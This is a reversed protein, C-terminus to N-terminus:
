NDTAGLKQTSYIEFYMLHLYKNNECDIQEPLKNLSVRSNHHNTCQKSLHLEELEVYIVFGIRVSDKPRKQKERLHTRKWSM